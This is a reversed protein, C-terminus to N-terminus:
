INYNNILTQVLTNKINKVVRGTKSSYELENFMDEGKYPLTVMKSFM